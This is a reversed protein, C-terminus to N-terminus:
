YKLNRGLRGYRDIDHVNCLDQKGLRNLASTADERLSTGSPPILGHPRIWVDESVVVTDGDVVRVLVM